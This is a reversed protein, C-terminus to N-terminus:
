RAKAKNSEHNAEFVPQFLPVLIKAGEVSLHQGDVYLVENDKVIGYLGNRNLFYNAPDLVTAGMKSIRIFVDDMTRNAEQYEKPTIGFQELDGHKLVALATKIAVNNPQKPIDKMVYVTAGRKIVEVITLCLDNEFADSSSYESWYATILVNKVHERGIYNLVAENFAPSQEQLAEGEMSVFRLVPATSSHTAQVGRRSFQRCLEDLAPTISMAHSDGWILLDVPQNTGLAGVEPFQGALAQQLTVSNRFACHNRSLVYRLAKGSYRTPIGQDFVVFVGGAILTIASIGSFWFIQSRKPLLTRKRFPTEVFKWTLMALVTTVLLMAASTGASQRNLPYQSFVLLPWHWLYLSYSILGIFVIPKLALIRGVYSLKTESSFIILAAGLCPPVAAVGPFPDFKDYSFIAYTILALGVAGMTENLWKKLWKEPILHGRMVALLAGVLLEWARAPLFYFTAAPFAQLGLASLLFSAVVIGGLIKALSKRNNGFAYLLLPFFLYFQEEVALSWTHLLPQPSIAPAFYGGGSRWQEYFFFNSLLTAQAIVSKGLEAFHEPLFYIWGGVFTVFVVTALAPLIRRLRREWFAILSFCGEDVDKLIISTILYGSIVFFVDVGVFGGSCALKAHFMLVPLIALARLGDIDPRRNEL